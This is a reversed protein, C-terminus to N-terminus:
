FRAAFAWWGECVRETQISLGAEKLPAIWHAKDELRQGSVIWMGGKELQQLVDPLLPLIESRIMNAIVVPFRNGPRLSETGGIWFGAKSRSEGLNVLRNEQLCPGCVPDLDFGGAWKAGRLLAYLALLGTGTGIDMVRLGQLDLTEMLEAALRTSEHSGTGFAM